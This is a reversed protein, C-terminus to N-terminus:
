AARKRQSAEVAALKKIKATRARVRRDHRAAEGTDRNIKAHIATTLSLETDVRNKTMNGIMAVIREVLGMACTECLHLLAHSTIAYSSGDRKSRRMIQVRALHDRCNQCPTGVDPTGIIWLLDRGVNRYKRLSM